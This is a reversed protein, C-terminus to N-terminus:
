HLYRDMQRKNRCKHSNFTNMITKYRLDSVRLQVRLSLTCDVVFGRRFVWVNERVCKGRPLAIYRIM